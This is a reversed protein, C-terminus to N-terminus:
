CDRVFFKKGYIPTIGLNGTGSTRTLFYETKIQYNKNPDVIFLERDNIKPINFIGTGSTGVYNILNREETAMTVLDVLTMKVIVNWASTATRNCSAYFASLPDNHPAISGAEIMQSTPKFKIDGWLETVGTGTISMLNTVNTYQDVFIFGKLINVSSFYAIKVKKSSSSNKFIDM